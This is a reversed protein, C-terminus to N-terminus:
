GHAKLMRHVIRVTKAPLKEFDMAKLTPVFDKAPVLGAKINDRLAAFEEDSFSVVEGAQVQAKGVSLAGKLNREPGMWVYEKM